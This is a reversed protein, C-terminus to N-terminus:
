GSNWASASGKTFFGSIEKWTSADVKIWSSSCEKWTSADSKLRFPCNKVEIVTIRCYGGSTSPNTTVSRTTSADTLYFEHQPHLIYM